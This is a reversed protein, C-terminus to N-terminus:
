QGNGGEKEQLANKLVIRGMTTLEISITRHGITNRSVLDARCLSAWFDHNKTYNEGDRVAKMAEIQKNTPWKM